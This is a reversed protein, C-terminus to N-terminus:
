CNVTFAFNCYLTLHEKASDVAWLFQPGHQEHNHSRHCKGVITSASIRPFTGRRMLTHRTALARGSLMPSRSHSHEQELQKVHQVKDSELHEHGSVRLMCVSYLVGKQRM